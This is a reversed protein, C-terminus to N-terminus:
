KTKGLLSIHLAPKFISCINQQLSADNHGIIIITRASVIYITHPNAWAYQSLWLHDSCSISCCDCKDSNIYFFVHLIGSYLKCFILITVLRDDRMVSSLINRLESVNETLSYFINVRPSLVTLQKNKHFIPFIAYSM